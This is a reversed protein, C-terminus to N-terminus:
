KVSRISRGSKRESSYLGFSNSEPNFYINWSQTTSYLKISWYGGSVNKAFFTSDSWDGVAKICNLMNSKILINKTM